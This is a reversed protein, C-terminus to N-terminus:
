VSPKWTENTYVAIALASWMDKSIGYLPGPKGKVGKWPDKGGGTPKFRDRCAASVQTDGTSSKGCLHIKIKRRFIEYVPKGLDYVVQAYRGGWHGTDFTTQQVQCGQAQLVEIGCVDFLQRRERIWSIMDTNHILGKDEISNKNFDVLVVGTWKHLPGPDIGLVRM